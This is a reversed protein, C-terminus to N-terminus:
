VCKQGLFQQVKFTKMGTYNLENNAAKLSTVTMNIVIAFPPSSYFANPHLLSCNEIRVKM